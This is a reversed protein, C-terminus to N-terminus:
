VFIKGNTDVINKIKEEAKYGPIKVRELGRKM